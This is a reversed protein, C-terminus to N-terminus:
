PSIDEEMYVEDPGHFDEIKARRMECSRIYEARLMQLGRIDEDIERLKDAHPGEIIRLRQLPILDSHLVLAPEAGNPQYIPFLYAKKGSVRTGHAHIDHTTMLINDNLNGSPTLEVFYKAMM